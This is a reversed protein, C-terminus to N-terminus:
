VPLTAQMFANRKFNEYWLSLGAKATFHPEYSDYLLGPLRFDLYGLATGVAIHALTIETNLESLRIEIEHLTQQIEKTWQAISSSSQEAAPRRKEMVLNYAADTLGDALAEWRLIQWKQWGQEPILRQKDCLSDLYHCIIPSDFLVENNDLVLVPIKGLPNLKKLQEQDEFPNILVTEVQQELTKILMVMRVKRSYPSTNSYYLKM